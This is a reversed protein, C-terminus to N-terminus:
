YDNRGGDQKLKKEAYRKSYICGCYNQRYLNYELSLQCSRKYGENKKFDSCLYKVSFENELSIGIENLWQANKHPSVSLTTTVYDYGNERAYLFSKSLRLRYCKECRESCEPLDELGRAIEEFEENNYKEYIVNVKSLGMEDRLRNLEKYRFDYESEPYINPNYFYLTINFYENLTELVASSCPACCAHLLLSPKLGAKKIKEIECDMFLKYNKKM